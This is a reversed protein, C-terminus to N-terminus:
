APIRAVLATGKPSSTVDLSGNVLALRDRMGSLGFGSSEAGTQFGKGDDIIKLEVHQDSISASLTVKAAKAHKRVNSLAEQVCRLLVVESDRDLTKIDALQLNVKLGTETEFRTALRELAAVIGGTVNVKAGSAVLARTEALAERANEEILDLTKAAVKPKGSDLDRRAGQVLMVLGTLSQAITDHLERALRERESSVGAERHLSALQSQTATLEDILQQKEESLSIIRTIWLGIALSFGLSMVVTFGSTMFSEVSIGLGLSMGIGVSVALAVNAVIATKHSENVMWVLPFAVCQIIAAAPHFYVAIGSTLVIFVTYITALRPQSFARWGILYWGAAFVGIASLAGIRRWTTMDDILLLAALVVTIAAVAIHWWRTKEM